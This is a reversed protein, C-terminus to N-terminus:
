YVFCDILKFSTKGVTQTSPSSRLIHRKPLYGKYFGDRNLLDLDTSEELIILPTGWLCRLTSLFPLRSIMLWKLRTKLQTTISEQSKDFTRTSPASLLVRHLWYELNTMQKTHKQSSKLVGNELWFTEHPLWIFQPNSTWVTLKTSRISLSELTELAALISEYNQLRLVIGSGKAFIVQEVLPSLSPNSNLDFPNTPSAVPLAVTPSSTETLSPLKASVEEM